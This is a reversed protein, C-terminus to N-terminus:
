DMLDSKIKEIREIDLQAEIRKIAEKRTMSGNRVRATLDAEYPHFGYRKVHNQIGLDNIQCNSSHAGTDSSQKWGKEILFQLIEEENYNLAVLPSMMTM